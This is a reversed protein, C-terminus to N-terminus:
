LLKGARMPAIQDPERCAYRGCGVQDLLELPRRSFTKGGYVKCGNILAAPAFRAHKLM